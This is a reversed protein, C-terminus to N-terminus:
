NISPWLRLLIIEAGLFTLALIIFIKWLKRGQSLERIADGLPKQQERLVSFSDLGRSEVAEELEGAALCRIDSEKRDYNFALGMRVSDTGMVAYHGADGVQDYVLLEARGGLVRQGPIFEMGNNLAAIKLIEDGPLSLQNLSIVQNTGVPYYLRDPAGSLMAIRYIVPIFLAHRHFNTYRDDLPVALLYVSGGGPSMVALFDDQNRLKMLGIRGEGGTHKLPFYSKVSPLDVPADPNRGGPSRGEFVDQFLPNELDLSSVASEALVPPLFADVGLASAIDLYSGPDMETGPIMLLSGGNSSFQGLAKILGTSYEPVGDLIVLSYAPFRDYNVNKYSVQEFRFAPDSGLLAGLYASEERGYIALVPIAEQVFYVLFLEDDFTVPYDTIALSGFQIGAEHNTYPLEVVATSNAAIDFSALAKQVGNVTLKVPIKENDSASVSRIRAMLKVNQGTQHVPSVFWCSDIFLNSVEGSTLPVLFGPVLTDERINDFDATSVQFDSILFRTATGSSGSALLENQRLIVQSLPRVTSSVIVEEVLQLFEEQSVLRQHRGEFDNTLLQFLDSTRYAGAIERAKERATALLEGRTGEAQMSFSNDIYVSVVNGANPSMVAESAPIFPQSFALVICSIALIRAILVLLHRLRSQKQTQLKLEQLYRVNSFYVKRHKRFNFLHIIVPVAVALLGWLM